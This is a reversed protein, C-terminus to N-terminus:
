AGKRRNVIDAFSELIQALDKTVRIEDDALDKLWLYNHRHAQVLLPFVDRLKMKVTADAAAPESEIGDRYVRLDPKKM